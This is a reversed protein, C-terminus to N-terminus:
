YECVYRAFGSGQRGAIAGAMCVPLHMWRRKGGDLGPDKFTERCHGDDRSTVEGVANVNTKYVFVFDFFFSLHVLFLFFFASRKDVVTQRFPGIFLCLLRGYSHTELICTVTCYFIIIIIIFFFFSSTTWTNACSAHMHKRRQGRLSEHSSTTKKKKRLFSIFFFSFVFPWMAKGESSLRWDCCVVPRETRDARAFVKLFTSKEEEMRGGVEGGDGWVGM